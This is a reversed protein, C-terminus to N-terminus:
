FYPKYTPPFALLAAGLLPPGGGSVRKGCALPGRGPRTGRAAGRGAPVARPAALKRRAAALRPARCLLGGWMRQLRVSGLKCYPTPLM